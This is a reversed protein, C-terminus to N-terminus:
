VNAPLNTIVGELFEDYGYLVIEPKTACDSYEVVSVSANPVWRINQMDSIDSGKWICLLSRIPTGHSVIMITKGENEALIRDVEKEVREKLKKVSEGGDCVANGIDNRWVSYTDPYKEQIFDFCKGEWEGAYIERLSKSTKIKIGNSEATPLATDYARKLDSSYIKDIKYDELYKKVLEAQKKGIESLGMDLQGTFVKQKNTKSEGHRVIILRTM